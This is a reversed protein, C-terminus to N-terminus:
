IEWEVVSETWETDTKLAFGVSKKYPTPELVVVNCEVGMSKAQNIENATGKSKGDHIFLSSDADRLVALSRHLFAGGAM